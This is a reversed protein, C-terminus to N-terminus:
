LKFAGFFTKDPTTYVACDYRTAGFPELYLKANEPLYFTGGSYMSEQRDLSRVSVACRSRSRIPNNNHNYSEGDITLM